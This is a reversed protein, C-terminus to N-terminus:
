DIRSDLLIKKSIRSKLVIEERAVLFRRLLYDKVFVQTLIKVYLVLGRFATDTAQVSDSVARKNGKSRSTESVANLESCIARFFGRCKELKELPNIIENLKRFFLFASNANGTANATQVAVRKYGGLLKMSDTLTVGQTLTRIYNQGSTYEFYMSLKFDYIETWKTIPYTGPISIYEDWWDAYCKAGWDFRPMWYYECLIGFWIYSGGTISGNSKFSASRWGAPSGSIVRMYIFEEATSKYTLPVNGNDTYFVARGGAEKDDQNVYAYATCLGNITEPVLFRNVPISLEFMLPEAPEGPEMVWKYQSGVTTTGVVPDVVVPYAAEGLWKEPITIRLENGIVALEGWCRRGRADIVEPRHIHCLKGTGEGLLTEKKYVAYSGKLFPDPVFDPQRLFDFSEAGDMLLSIVNSEPERNLICDYEFVDDGLITFRHSRRRGKYVLQHKDGLLSFGEDDHPVFRLGNGGWRFLGWNPTKKGMEVIVPFDTVSQRFRIKNDKSMAGKENSKIRKERNGDEREKKM